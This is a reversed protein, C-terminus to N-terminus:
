IDARGEGEAGRGAHLKAGEGNGHLIAGDTTICVPHNKLTTSVRVDKVREGLITKMKELLAKNEEAQKEAAQKEEETQVRADEAAVNKFSKGEYEQLVMLAFEDVDDTLYLVEYGRDLM